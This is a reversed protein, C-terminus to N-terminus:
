LIFSSQRITAINKILVSAFYKKNIQALVLHMPPKQPRLDKKKIKKKKVHASVNEHTFLGM